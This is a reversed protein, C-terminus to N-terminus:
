DAVYVRVIHGVSGQYVFDNEDYKYRASGDGVRYLSNVEDLPETLKKTSMVHVSDGYEGVYRSNRLTEGYVPQPSAVGDMMPGMTGNVWAQWGGDVAAMLGLGTKETFVVSKINSVRVSEAANVLIAKTPTFKDKDECSDCSNCSDDEDDESQLTAVTYVDGTVEVYNPDDFSEYL